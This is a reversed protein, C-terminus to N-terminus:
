RKVKQMEQIIQKIEGLIRESEAQKGADKAYTYEKVKDWPIDDGGSRMASETAEQNTKSKTVTKMEGTIKDKTTEPYEWKDTKSNYKFQPGDPHGYRGVNRDGVMVERLKPDMQERTEKQLQQRSKIAYDAIEKDTKGAAKMKDVNQRILKDRTEYQLRLLPRESHKIVVRTGSGGTASEPHARALLKDLEERLTRMAKPIEVEGQALLKTIEKDATQLKALWDDPLIKRFVWSQYLNQLGHQLGQGIDKFYGLVDKTYKDWPLEKLYKVPDGKTVGRILALVVELAEDAYKGGKKIARIVYGFVGKLVGGAVPILAILSVTLAIWAWHDSPKKIVKCLNAIIDRVDVAEGIFPIASIIAGVMIQSTTPDENFDGELVGVLWDMADQVKTTM